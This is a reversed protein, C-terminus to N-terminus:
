RSSFHKYFFRSVIVQYYKELLYSISIVTFIIVINRIQYQQPIYGYYSFGILPVHSIYLAYSFPAIYKFSSFIHDFMVWRYNHWILAISLVLLAFSFHRIELIPYVGFGGYGSKHIIANITLGTICSLLLGIPYICSRLKFNRNSIYTDALFVGTWWIAFYMMVRSIYNPIYIYSAVGIISILIVILKNKSSTGLAYLPYYMMYFWWEYSLSWLPGNGMYPDVIVNPKGGSFDQFMFINGILSSPDPNILHGARSSESFYSIVFVLLLLPYIRLFRALFYSRFNVNSKRMTSFHIVFGSLLFFIIVAEQGFRFLIGLISGKDIHLGYGILFHGIFVYLAAAGRVCELKDLKTNM